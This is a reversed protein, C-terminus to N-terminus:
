VEPNNEPERLSTPSLIALDPASLIFQLLGSGSELLAVSMANVNFLCKGPGQAHGSHASILSHVLM